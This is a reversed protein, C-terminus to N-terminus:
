FYFNCPHQDPNLLKKRLQDQYNKISPSVVGNEHIRTKPKSREQYVAERLRLLIDDVLMTIDINRIKSEPGAKNLIELNVYSYFRNAFADVLTENRSPLLYPYQNGSIDPAFMSVDFVTWGRYPVYAMSRLHLDSIKSIFSTHKFFQVLKLWIQTHFPTEDQPNEVRKRILTDFYDRLNYLNSPLSEYLDFYIGQGPLWLPLPSVISLSPIAAKLMLLGDRKMEFEKFKWPEPLELHLQLAVSRGHFLARYIFANAGEGQMEVVQFELSDVEGPIHIYLLTPSADIPGDILSQNLAAISESYQLEDDFSLHVRDPSSQGLAFPVLNFFAIGLLLARM